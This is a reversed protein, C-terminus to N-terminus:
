HSKKKKVHTVIHSKLNNSQVFRKDCGPFPCAFRKEGTHIRVHTRLNFDLSFRKGCGAFTCQFPREGTHTLFHRALKSSEHFARGCEACVHARPAHVLLHKRLANKDRLRRTCGSHPCDLAEPTGHDKDHPSKREAFEGLKKPDLLNVGPIGGAPLKKGALYESHELHSDGEVMQPLPKQRAGNKMYELSCEILSSAAFVQQSLGEEAYKSIDELSRPLFDELNPESFQSTIVCEIYSDPFDEERFTQPSPEPLSGEECLALTVPVLNRQVEPVPSAQCQEPKTGHLAQGGQGKQGSTRARRKMQQSM